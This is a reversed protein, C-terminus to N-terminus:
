RKNSLWIVQRYFLKVPMISAWGRWLTGTRWSWTIRTFICASSVNHMAWHTCLYMSLHRIFRYTDQWDNNKRSTESRTWCPNETYCPSAYLVANYHVFCKVMVYHYQLQSQFSPTGNWHRETCSKSLRGPLTNDLFCALVGAVFLPTGFMAYLVNNLQTNGVLYIFCRTTLKDVNRKWVCDAM